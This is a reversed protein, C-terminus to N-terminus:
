IWSLPFFFPLPVFGVLVFVHFISLFCLLVEEVNRVLFIFSFIFYFVFFCAGYFLVAGVRSPFLFYFFLFFLYGGM